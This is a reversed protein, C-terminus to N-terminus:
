KWCPCFLMTHNYSKKDSWFSWLSSYDFLAVLQHLWSEIKPGDFVFQSPLFANQLWCSILYCCNHHFTVKFKYYIDDFWSSPKFQQKSTMKVWESVQLIIANCQLHHADKDCLNQWQQQVVDMQYLLFARHYAPNKWCKYPFCFNGDNIQETQLQYHLQFKSWRCSVLEEEETPTVSCDIQENDDKVELFNISSMMKKMEVMANHMIVCTLVM